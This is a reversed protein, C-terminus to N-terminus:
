NVPKKTQVFVVSRMKSNKMHIASVVLQSIYDAIQVVEFLRTTQLVAIQMYGGINVIGGIHINGIPPIDKGVGAGPYLPEDKVYISGISKQRGLCADIAIVFADKHYENIEEQVYEINMAHVPNKLDGYIYTNELLENKLQSGVLPGLSDGTSRDTGVCVIVIKKKNKIYQYLEKIMLEKNDKDTYHAEM